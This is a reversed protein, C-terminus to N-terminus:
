VTSLLGRRTCPVEKDQTIAEGKTWARYDCCKTPADTKTLM